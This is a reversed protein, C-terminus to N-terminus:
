LGSRPSAAYGFSAVAESAAIPVQRGDYFGAIQNAIGGFEADGAAERRLRNLLVFITWEDHSGLSFNAGARLAYYVLFNKRKAEWEAVQDGDAQGVGEGLGLKSFHNRFEWDVSHKRSFYQEIAAGLSEREAPAFFARVDSPGLFYYAHFGRGLPPRKLDREALRVDQVLVQTWMRMYDAGTPGGQEGSSNPKLLEKLDIDHKSAHMDLLGYGEKSELQYQAPNLIWFRDGWEALLRRETFKAIEVNTRAHGGGRASVPCSLYVCIKGDLQARAVDGRIVKVQEDFIKEWAGSNWRFKLPFGAVPERPQDDQTDSADTQKM